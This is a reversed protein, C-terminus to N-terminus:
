VALSKGQVVIPGKIMGPATPIIQGVKLRHEAIHHAFTSSTIDDQLMRQVDNCHQQNYSYYVSSSSEEVLHLLSFTRQVNM